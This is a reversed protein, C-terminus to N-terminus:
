GRRSKRNEEVQATYSKLADLEPKTINEINTLAEIIPTLHKPPLNLNKIKGLMQTMLRDPYAFLGRAILDKKEILYGEIALIGLASKQSDTLNWSNIHEQNELITYNAKVLIIAIENRQEQYLNYEKMCKLFLDKWADRSVVEAASKMIEFREENSVCSPKPVYGIVACRKLFNKREDGTLEYDSIAELISSYNGFSIAVSSEVKSTKIGYMISEFHCRRDTESLAGFQQWWKAPASGASVLKRYSDYNEGLKHAIRTAMGDLAWQEFRFRQVNNCVWIADPLSQEALKSLKEYNSLRVRHHIYSLAFAVAPLIGLTLVFSAIKIGTTVSATRDLKLYDNAIEGAYLICHYPNPYNITNAM